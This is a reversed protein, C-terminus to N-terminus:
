LSIMVIALHFAKWSVVNVMVTSNNWKVRWGGRYISSISITLILDVDVTQLQM